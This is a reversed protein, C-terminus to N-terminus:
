QQNMKAADLAAQFTASTIPQSLGQNISPTLDGTAEDSIALARMKTRVVATNISLDSADLLRSTERLAGTQVGLNIWPNVVPRPGGGPAPDIPKSWDEVITLMANFNNLARQTAVNVRSATRQGADTLPPNVPANGMAQSNSAAVHPPAATPDSM